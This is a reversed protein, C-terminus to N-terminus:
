ILTRVSPHLTAMTVPHPSGKSGKLRFALDPLACSKPFSSIRAYILTSGFLLSNSGLANTVCGSNNRDKWGIGWLGEQIESPGATTVAATIITEATRATPHHMVAAPFHSNRWWPWSYPQKQFLFHTWLQDNRLLMPTRMKKLNPPCNSDLTWWKKFTKKIQIQPLVHSYFSM